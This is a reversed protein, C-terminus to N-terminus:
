KAALSALLEYLEKAAADVTKRGYAVSLNIEDYNALFTQDDPVNPDMPTTHDALLDFLKYIEQDLPTANVAIAERVESNASIGRDNGLIKGSEPNNVFYNIFAAATEKNTSKSNICFYQSPMIWAVNSNVEPLPAVGLEDTMSAQYGGVQNSYLISMVVKGAVLASTDAGKETYQASFEGSPVVGKDRWGAWMELFSKFTAEDTINGDATYLPKGAWRSYYGFTNSEYCSADFLAYTGQPLKAQVTELYTGFTEWTLDAGPPAVGIEDLVKKNYVLGLRNAGLCLGYVKGDVTIADLMAEDVNSIDILNGFYDDLPELHGNKVYDLYNGGFQLVDPATGGALETDLSTWYDGGGLPDPQISVGPNEAVFNDIVQQTMEHRADGGWWKVKIQGSVGSGDGEAPAAENVNANAASPAPSAGTGSTSTSGCGSLVSFLMLTATLLALIKKMRIEM